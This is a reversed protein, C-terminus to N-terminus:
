EEKRRKRRKKMEQLKQWRDAIIEQEKKQEVHKSTYDDEYGARIEDEIDEANYFDTFRKYKPKPHKDSGTTAQVQQNLWAQSAIDEQKLAKKIAYAEMGLQYEVLTLCEIEHM